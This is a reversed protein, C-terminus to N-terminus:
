SSGKLLQFPDANSIISVTTTTEMFSARFVKVAVVVFVLATLAPIGSLIAGRLTDFFSTVPDPKPKPEDRATVM